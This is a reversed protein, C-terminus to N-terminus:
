RPGGLLELQWVRAQEAHAVRNLYLSEVREVGHEGRAARETVSWGAALLMTDYLDNRYSSVLMPGPHLLAEALLEVHQEPTMMEHRYLPERTGQSTEAPYPPDLYVLVDPGRYTRLLDIAPRNEIHVGRLRETAALIRAPLDAWEQAFSRGRRGNDKGDRRWGSRSGTRAGHSQWSEVLFRRAKELPDSWEGGGRAERWEARAYPTLGVVRALDDPRDRLMTFLAVVRDDLDNIIETPSRPKAWLVAASGCCAELYVPRRVMHGVIWEAHTWKSGPVKCVRHSM